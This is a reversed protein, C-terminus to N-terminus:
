KLKIDFCVDTSQSLEAALAQKPDLHTPSNFGTATSTSEISKYRIFYFNTLRILLNGEDDVVHGFL